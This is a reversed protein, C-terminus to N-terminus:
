SEDNDPVEEDNRLNNIFENFSDAILTLNSYDPVEGQAPDAEMEHDWFYIKGRDPGKVSLLILNGFTDYAIPFSWTPIRGNYVKLTELLDLDENLTIGLFAQLVSGEDQGKFNFHKEKPFGGNKELLFVKYTKPLNFEWFRELCELTEKSLTPSSNELKIM